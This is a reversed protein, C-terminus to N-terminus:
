STPKDPESLIAPTGAESPAALCLQGVGLATRLLKALVLVTAATLRLHRSQLLMAFGILIAPFVSPQKMLLRMTMSRPFEPDTRSPPLLLSTFAQRQASLQESIVIRKAVIEEDNGFIM